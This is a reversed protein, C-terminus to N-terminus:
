SNEFKTELDRMIAEVTRYGNDKDFIPINNNRLYNVMDRIYRDEWTYLPRPIIWPKNAM